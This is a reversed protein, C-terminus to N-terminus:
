CYEYFIENQSLQYAERVSEAMMKIKNVLGLDIKENVPIQQDLYEHDDSAYLEIKVSTGEVSITVKPADDSSDDVSINLRKDKVIQEWGLALALANHFKDKNYM